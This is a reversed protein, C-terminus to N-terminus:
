KQYVSFTFLPAAAPNVLSKVDVLVPFLPFDCLACSCHCEYGVDLSRLTLTDVATTDHSRRLSYESVGNLSKQLTILTLEPTLKAKNFAPATQPNLNQNRVFNIALLIPTPSSSMPQKKPM